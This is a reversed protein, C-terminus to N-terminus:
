SSAPKRGSWFHSCELNACVYLLEMTEDTPTIFVAEKHGCKTCKADSRRPLTPDLVIDKNVAFHSVVSKKLENHYVRSYPAPWDRGCNRCAAMLQKKGGKRNEKPYLMNQCESCFNM